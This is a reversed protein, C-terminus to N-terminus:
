KSFLGGFQAEFEILPVTLRRTIGGGENIEFVCWPGYEREKIQRLYLTKGDEFVVTKGVHEHM